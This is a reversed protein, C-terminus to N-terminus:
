LNKNHILVMEARFSNVRILDELSMKRDGIDRFIIPNHMNDRQTFQSHNLDISEYSCNKRNWLEPSSSFRKSSDGIWLYYEINPNEIIKMDDGLNYKPNVLWSSIVFKPKYKELATELDLQEIDKTAPRKALICNSDTERSGYSHDDISILNVDKNLKLYSALSGDGAGIELFKDSSYKGLISYIIEYFEITNITFLGRKDVYFSYLGQQMLKAIIQLTSVFSHIKRYGNPEFFFKDAEEIISQYNEIFEIGNDELEFRFISDRLLLEDENLEFDQWTM